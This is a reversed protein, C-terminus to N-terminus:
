IFSKFSNQFAKLQVYKTNAFKNNKLFIVVLLYSHFGTSLHSLFAMGPFVLRVPFQFSRILVQKSFYTMEKVVIKKEYYWSSILFTFITYENTLRCERIWHEGALALFRTSHKSFTILSHQHFQGRWVSDFKNSVFYIWNLWFQIQM